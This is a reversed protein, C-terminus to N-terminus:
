ETELADRNIYESCLRSYNEDLVQAFFKHVNSSYAEALCSHYDAVAKEPNSYYAVSTELNRDNSDHNSSKIVTLAYNNM